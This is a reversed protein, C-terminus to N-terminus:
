QTGGGGEWVGGGVGWRLVSEARIRIPQQRSLGFVAGDM